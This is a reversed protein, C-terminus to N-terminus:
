RLNAVLQLLYACLLGGYTGLIYGAVGMLAGVSALEPQFASAVIPASAAGGINAQSGVALFFVPCRLLRRLLLLTIAHIAIWVGGVVLLGPADFVHRFEASAGISAVLLYLFVSGIRSAGTGELERLRTFSAAVGVATVLIVTWAFHGLIGGLNPLQAALSSAVVTTGIAISLMTFLDSLTPERVVQKHYSELRRRLDDLTRRDAGLAADMKQENAAFLLLIAMWVNALAVDIVIMMGLTAQSTGVSEAVAVFNAAGGIWSGSLAALGKWAQEGMETPVLWGLLLFAVPGGLVISLTGGFFMFLMNRGLRLIAPIDVSLTLLVLSAPLLWKKIWDYVPSHLPIVGLNSLVTPVFYIFLLVPVYRFIGAGWPHRALAFLGALITLLVALVAVPQTIM